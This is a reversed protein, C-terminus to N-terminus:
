FYLQSAPATSPLTSVAIRMDTRYAAAGRLGVITSAAFAVATVLAVVWWRRRVIAWYERLEVIALLTDRGTWFRADPVVTVRGRGLNKRRRRFSSSACSSTGTSSPM